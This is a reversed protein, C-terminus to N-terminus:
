LASEVRRAGFTGKFNSPNLVDPALRATNGLLRAAVLCHTCRPGVELGCGVWRRPMISGLPILQCCWAVRASEVLLRRRTLRDDRGLQSKCVLRSGPKPLTEAGTAVM